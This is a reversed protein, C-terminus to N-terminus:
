DNQRSRASGIAGVVLHAAHLDRFTTEPRSPGGLAAVAPQLREIQFRQWAEESEWVAIIRFGEDTPGALHLILGQPDPETLGAAV